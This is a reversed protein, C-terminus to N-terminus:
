VGRPLKNPMNVADTFNCNGSLCATAVQASYALDGFLNGFVAIVPAKAVFLGRAILEGAHRSIFNPPM